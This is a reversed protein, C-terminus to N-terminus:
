SRCVRPSCRLGPPYTTFYDAPLDLAPRSRAPPMPVAQVPPPLTALTRQLKWVVRVAPAPQRCARVQGGAVRRADALKHALEKETWPPQCRRNFERLVSLADGDGLGFRVCECAARFTAPHGGDGSVAPPLKAVYNRCAAVANM